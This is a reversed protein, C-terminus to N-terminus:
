ALQPNSHDAMENPVSAVAMTPPISPSRKPTRRITPSPTTRIPMVRARRPVAVLKPAIYTQISSNPMASARVNGLTGFASPM